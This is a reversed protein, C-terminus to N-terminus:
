LERWNRLAPPVSNRDIVVEIQRSVGKFTGTSTVIVIGNTDTTGGGRDVAVGTIARDNAHNDNRVTVTFIGFDIALGPLRSNTAMVGADTTLISSWDPNTRLADFAWELGADALYLARTEDNLNGSIYPEMTSMSLFAMVLMSLLVLAFLALPLAM